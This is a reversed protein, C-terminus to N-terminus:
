YVTPCLGSVRIHLIVLRDMFLYTFLYTLLYSRYKYLAYDITSSLECYMGQQSANVYVDRLFTMAVDNANERLLSTVIVGLSLSCTRLPQQRTVDYLAQSLRLGPCTCLVQVFTM